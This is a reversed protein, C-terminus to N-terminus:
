SKDTCRVWLGLSVWHRHRRRKSIAESAGSANEATLRRSRSTRTRVNTAAHRATRAIPSSRGLRMSIRRSINHAARSAKAAPMSVYGLLVVSMYRMENEVKVPPLLDYGCRPAHLTSRPAHLPSSSGFDFTIKDAERGIEAMGPDNLRHKFASIRNRAITVPRRRM